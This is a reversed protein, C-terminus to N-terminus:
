RRALEPNFDRTLLENSVRKVLEGVDGRTDFHLVNLGEASDPMEFGERGKGLLEATADSVRSPDLERKRMRERVVEDPADCHVFLARGGHREAAERARARFERSSFQGDLIMGPGPGGMADFLVQYTKRSMERTYASEPLRETPAVGALRKREIDSSIVRWAFQEALADAVTSKGCGMIGMVVIVHPERAHFDGLAFCHRALERAAAKQPEPVEPENLQLATVKGMVCALHAQYYRRLMPPFDDEAIERYADLVHRAHAFHGLSELGTALFCAECLTDLRRFLPNFEICDTIVPRGNVFAINAPKLDGHGDRIRDDRVRSEFVEHNSEFWGRLLADLRRWRERSLCGPVFPECEAINAVTNHRLNEPRGAARVEEDGPSARLAKVLTEVLGIIRREDLRNDRALHPLWADDPIRKMVVAYDAVDEGTPAQLDDTVDGMHLAGNRKVVECVGLYTDPAFRRNLTLENLIMRRRLALTSYDLFPFKVPKKLKFARDGKLLVLNAHTQIEREPDIAFPLGSNHM